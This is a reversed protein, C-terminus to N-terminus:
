DGKPGNKDEKKEIPNVIEIKIDKLLDGSVEVSNTYGRKKGKYKMYFQISSESGEKIKKFLQHEVFDGQIEDIADVRRKFEEDDKLWRYFTDRSVGAEKCAASVIGLSRELAELLKEKRNEKM